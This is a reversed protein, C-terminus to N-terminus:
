FNCAYGNKIFCYSFYSCEQLIFSRKEWTKSKLVQNYGEEDFEYIKDSEVISNEMEWRKKADDAM